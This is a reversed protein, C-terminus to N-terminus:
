SFVTLLDGSANDGTRSFTTLTSNACLWIAYCVAKLYSLCGVKPCVALFYLACLWDLLACLWDLLACLWDLLACLWDFLACLWPALLCCVGGM